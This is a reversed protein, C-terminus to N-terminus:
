NANKVLCKPNGLPLMCSPTTQYLSFYLLLICFSRFSATIKPSKFYILILNVFFHQITFAKAVRNVKSYRAYYINITEKSLNSIHNGSDLFFFFGQLVSM